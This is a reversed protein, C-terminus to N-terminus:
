SEKAVTGLLSLDEDFLVANIEDIDYSGRTIFYEVIMDLAYYPSLALGARMLLDKTQELDLRLGVACALVSTKKPVQDPRNKMAWFSAKSINADTYFRHKTIQKQECWWECMEAFSKDQARYDPLVPVAAGDPACTASLVADLAPAKAPLGNRRQRQAPASMPSAMPPLAARDEFAGILEREHDARYRDSIFAHVTDGVRGSIGEAESDYLVLYIMMEGDTESLLFARAAATAIRYVEAKPFANAGASILPVALSRCGWAKATRFVTRYCREILAADDAESGPRCVPGVAHIIWRCDKIGYAETVVCSGTPCHGIKALAEALAPGAAYRISADVGLGGPILNENTSNVIADVEMKTIDNRVISLAM